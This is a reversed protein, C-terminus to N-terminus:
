FGLKVDDTLSSLYREKNIQYLEPPRRGTNERVLGTKVLYGLKLMRKRFNGRDVSRGLIGEYLKQLESMSIYDPIFSLLIPQRLLDKALAKRAEAVIYTHDMVLGINDKINVWRGDSFIPSTAKIEANPDSITSYYAITVFRQSMWDRIGKPYGISELDSNAETAQRDSAGFAGFQHLVLDDIGTREFLIRRAADDVSEGQFIYGGPIMDMNSGVLRVVAFQLVKGTFRFIVCDISLQPISGHVMKRMSDIKDKSLKNMSKM